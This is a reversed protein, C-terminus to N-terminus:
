LLPKFCDVSEPDPAPRFCWTKRTKLQSRGAALLAAAKAQLLKGAAAWLQPCSEPLTMCPKTSAVGCKRMQVM